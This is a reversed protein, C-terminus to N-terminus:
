VRSTLKIQNELRALNYPTIWKWFLKCQFPSKVFNCILGLNPNPNCRIAGKWACNHGINQHTPFTARHEFGRLISRTHGIYGSSWINKWRPKLKLPINCLGVLTNNTHKKVTSKLQEDYKGSIQYWVVYWDIINVKRSSPSFFDYETSKYSLPHM